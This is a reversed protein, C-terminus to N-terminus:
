SGPKTDSVKMSSKIEQRMEMEVENGAAEITMKMELNVSSESDALRGKAADFKLMGKLKDSKIDAKLLKFPMAPGGADAKPKEYGLKAEFAIKDLAGDKGEYKYSSDAKLTGLPGMPITANRKWTDGVSVSKDPTVAFLQDLSRKITEENMSMKVFMAAQEDEGAIRKMFDEYGELKVVEMKPNLTITFSAGEFKKAMAELDMGPAQMSSESKQSVITREVVASGDPNAKKVAFKSVVVTKTEMPQSNGMFVMEMKMDTTETAYFTEGEKFKWKIEDAGVAGAAAGWALLCLLSVATRPRM